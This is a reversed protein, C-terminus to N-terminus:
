TGRGAVNTSSVVRPPRSASRSRASTPRARSGPSSTCTGAGRRPRPCTRGRPPPKRPPATFRTSKRRTKGGLSIRGPKAPPCSCHSLPTWRLRRAVRSPWDRSATLVTPAHGPELEEPEPGRLRVHHGLDHGHRPRPRRVHERPAPRALARRDAEGPARDDHVRDDRARRRGPAGRATGGRSASGAGPARRRPGGAGGSPAAATADYDRSHPTPGDPSSSDRLQAPQASGPSAREGPGIQRSHATRPSM